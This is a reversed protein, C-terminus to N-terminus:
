LALCHKRWPSGASVTSANRCSYEQRFWCTKLIRGIEEGVGAMDLLLLNYTINFV